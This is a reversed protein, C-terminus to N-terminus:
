ACVSLVDRAMNRTLLLTITVQSASEAATPSCRTQDSATKMRQILVFRHPDTELSPLPSTAKPQRICEKSTQLNSGCTSCHM